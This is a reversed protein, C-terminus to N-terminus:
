SPCNACDLKMSIDMENDDQTWSQERNSTDMMRMEAAADEDVAAMAVSSWQLVM